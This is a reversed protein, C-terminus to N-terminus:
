TGDSNGAGVGLMGFARHQHLKAVGFHQAGGAHFFLHRREQAIAILTPQGRFVAHKRASSMRAAIAFRRAAFLAAPRLFDLAQDTTRKAGDHIQAREAM